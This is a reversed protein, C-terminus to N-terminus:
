DAQDEAPRNGDMEGLRHFLKGLTRLNCTDCQVPCMDFGSYQIGM